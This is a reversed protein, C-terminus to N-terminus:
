VSPPTGEGTPQVPRITTDVPAPTRCALEILRALTEAPLSSLLQEAQLSTPDPEAKKRSLMQM